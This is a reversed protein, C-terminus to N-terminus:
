PLDFSEGGKKAESLVGGGFEGIGWGWFRGWDFTKIGANTTL